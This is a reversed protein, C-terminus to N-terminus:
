KGPTQAAPAPADKNVAIQAPTILDRAARACSRIVENDVNSPGGRVQLLCKTDEDFFRFVQVDDAGQAVVQVCAYTGMTDDDRDKRQACKKRLHDADEITWCFASVNCIEDGPMVGLRPNIKLLAAQEATSPRKGGRILSCSAAAEAEAMAAPKTTLPEKEGLAKTFGALDLLQDCPIHAGGPVPPIIKKAIENTGAKAKLEKEAENRAEEAGANESKNCAVLPLTAVVPVALSLGTLTIAALIARM